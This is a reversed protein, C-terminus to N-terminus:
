SGGKGTLFCYSVDQVIWQNVLGLKTNLMHMGYLCCIVFWAFLSTTFNSVASHIQSSACKDAAATKNNEEPILVDWSGYKRFSTNLM